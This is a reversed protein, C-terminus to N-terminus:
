RKKQAAAESDARLALAAYTLDLSGETNKQQLSTIIRRFTTYNQRTASHKKQECSFDM